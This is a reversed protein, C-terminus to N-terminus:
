EAKGHYDHKKRGWEAATSTNFVLCAGDKSLWAWKCQIRVFERKEENDVIYALDYGLSRNWPVLVEYGLQVLRNLVATEGELGRQQTIGM